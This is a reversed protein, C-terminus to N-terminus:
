AITEAETVEGEVGETAEEAQSAQQYRYKAALEELSIRGLILIQNMFGIIAGAIRNRLKKSKTTTVIEVLRKYMEFRFDAALKPDIMAIEEAKDWVEKVIDWYFVIIRKATDKIIRHKIRGM